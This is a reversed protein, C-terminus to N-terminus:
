ALRRLVIKVQFNGSLVVRGGAIPGATHFDLVVRLSDM